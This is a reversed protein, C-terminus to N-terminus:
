AIHAMTGHIIHQETMTQSHIAVPAVYNSVYEMSASKLTGTVDYKSAFDPNVKAITQFDNMLQQHIDKMMTPPFITKLEPNETSASTQNYLSKSHEGENASDSQIQSSSNTGAVTGNSNPSAKSPAPQFWLAELRQSNNTTNDITAMGAPSFNSQSVLKGTSTNYTASDVKNGSSNIDYVYTNGDKAHVTEEYQSASGDSAFNSGYVDEYNYYWQSQAANDSMITIQGAAYQTEYQAGAYWSGNNSLKYMNETSITKSITDGEGIGIKITLSDNYTVESDYQLNNIYGGM